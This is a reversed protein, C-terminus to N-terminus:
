GDHSGRNRSCVPKTYLGLPYFSVHCYKGFKVFKVHVHKTPLLRYNKFPYFGRNAMYHIYRTQALVSVLYIINNQKLWVGGIGNPLPSWISWPLCRSAPHWLSKSFQHCLLGSSRCRGNDRTLYLSLTVFVDGRRLLSPTACGGQMFDRNTLM